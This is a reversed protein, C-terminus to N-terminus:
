RCFNTQIFKPSKRCLCRTWLSKLARSYATWSADHLKRLLTTEVQVVSAKTQYMVMDGNEFVTETPAADFKPVGRLDYNGAFNVNFFTKSPGSEYFSAAIRFGDKQFQVSGPAAATAV